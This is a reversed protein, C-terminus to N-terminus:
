TQATGKLKQAQANDNAAQPLANGVPDLEVMERPDNGNKGPLETWLQQGPSVGFAQDAFGQAITWMAEIAALKEAESADFDNLHSLYTKPDFAM